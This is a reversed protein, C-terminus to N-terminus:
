SKSIPTESEQTMLRPALPFRRGNLPLFFLGAEEEVYKTLQYYARRSFRAPFLGNKVRCYLVHDPAVTLTEPALDEQTDDSLGLSFREKGGACGVSQPDVRWVVHATDEVEVTCREGQWHILYGGASGKELHAYFLRVLDRRLMERGEHYWRGEKDIRIMCPPLTADSNGNM